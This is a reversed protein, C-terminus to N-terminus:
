SSTLTDKFALRKLTITTGFPKYGGLILHMLKRMITGIDAESALESAWM